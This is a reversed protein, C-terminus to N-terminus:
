EGGGGVHTKLWDGLRNIAKRRGNCAGCGAKSGLLRRITKYARDAGIKAIAAAVLDGWGEPDAAARMLELEDPDLPPVTEPQATPDASGWAKGYACEFRGLEGRFTAGAPGQDRCDGCHHGSRCNHSAFFQELTIDM